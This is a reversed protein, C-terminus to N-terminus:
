FNVLSNEEFLELASIQDEKEVNRLSGRMVTLNRSRGGCHKLSPLRRIPFYGISQSYKTECGTENYIVVIIVIHM